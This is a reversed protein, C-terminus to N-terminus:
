FGGSSQGQQAKEFIGENVCVEHTLGSAIMGVKCLNLNDAGPAGWTLRQHQTKTITARNKTCKWEEQTIFGEIKPSKRTDHQTM